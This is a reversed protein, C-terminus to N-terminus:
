WVNRMLFLDVSRKIRQRIETKERGPKKKRKKGWQWKRSVLVTENLRTQECSAAKSPNTNM